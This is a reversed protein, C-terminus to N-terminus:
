IVEIRNWTNLEYIGYRSKTFANKLKVTDGVMCDNKQSGWLNLTIIGTDDELKAKVLSMSEIAIPKKDIIKGIVDVKLVRNNKIDKIKM